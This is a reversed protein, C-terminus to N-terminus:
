TADLLLSTSLQGVLVMLYDLEKGVLKGNM